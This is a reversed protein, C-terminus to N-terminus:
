LRMDEAKVLEFIFFCLDPNVELFTEFESYDIALM